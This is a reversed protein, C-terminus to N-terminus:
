RSKDYCFRIDVHIFHIFYLGKKNHFLDFLQTFESFARVYLRPYGQAFASYYRLLTCRSNWQGHFEAVSTPGLRAPSFGKFRLACCRGLLILM